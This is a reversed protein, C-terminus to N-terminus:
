GDKESFISNQVQWPLNLESDNWVVGADVERYYARICHYLVTADDSLVEFGSADM